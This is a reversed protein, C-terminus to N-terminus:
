IPSAEKQELHPAGIGPGTLYHHQAVMSGREKKERKSRGIPAAVHKRDINVGAAQGHCPPM